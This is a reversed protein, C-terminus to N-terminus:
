KNKRLQLSKFDIIKPTALTGTPLDLLYEVEAPNISLGYDDSLVEMFENPKFVNEQLLMIVATKLLAPSATLLVDDLPEEKRLGRRQMHFACFIRGNLVGVNSLLM